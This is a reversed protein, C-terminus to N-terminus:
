VCRSTYLLCPNGANAESVRRFALLGYDPDRGDALWQLLVPLLNRQIRATRSSGRTLATLHRM